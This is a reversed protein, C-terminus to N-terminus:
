TLNAASVRVPGTRSIAQRACTRPLGAGSRIRPEEIDMGGLAGRDGGLRQFADGREVGDLLLGASLRGLVARGDALGPGYRAEVIGALEAPAPDVSLTGAGIRGADLLDGIMRSNRAAQKEVIHLYQRLEERDPERPDELATSASGRIAPLPARLQHSM